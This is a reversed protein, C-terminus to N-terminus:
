LLIVEKFVPIEGPSLIINEKEGNVTLDSYDEVGSVSLVIGGIKAYSVYSKKLATESLYNELAKTIDESCVESDMTLKMSVTISVSLAAEVTVNAGIPRKKAIHTAVDTVLLEDAPQDYSSSTSQTIIVKVTGPGNWLPVVLVGSVGEVEKAWQVYENSNGSSNPRSVKEEYRELLSEDSEEDYGGEFETINEVKTLGPVTVPFRYIDGIGVNGAAGTTCSFATLDIYGAEPITSASETEFLLKDSAVLTGKPIVAGREGSIRLTGRSCTAERRVINQEAVKRDLYEDKATLAFANVSLNSIKESLLYLQIAVPYLLDYFISGESPEYEDSVGAIMYEFIEDITM